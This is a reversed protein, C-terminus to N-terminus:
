FTVPFRQITITVGVTSNGIVAVSLSLQADLPIHRHVYKIILFFFVKKKKDAINM